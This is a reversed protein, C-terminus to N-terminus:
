YSKPMELAKEAVFNLVMEQSVPALYPIMVERMLREVHFEGAYGMGGHTAMSQKCANFGAEAALYKATNAEVGCSQGTDYLWAAKMMSLYAAELEMWIKALPHQIAQNQGIPRQFVIRDRAYRAARDLADRGIGIAEAALLIREFNLSHLVYRFGQGEEGIRNEVPIEMGEFYVENTDVAKRGMKDIERIAVKSRDLDACFLSLGGIPRADDRPSTRALLMVKRAIQATSTWVKQGNVVYHNGRREARCSIRTTDLGADPETVAFCMKYKGKTIDPLWRQKQEESGFCEISKPGFINMHICSAATMGGGSAAITMMMLAAETVGLGSGGYREPLAIGLWGDVAVANFFAEPFQGSRDADRWYEDPFKAVIGQLADSIAQQDDSLSFEM